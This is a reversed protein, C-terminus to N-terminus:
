HELGGALFSDACIKDKEGQVTCKGERGRTKNSSKTEEGVIYTLPSMPEICPTSLNKSSRLIM